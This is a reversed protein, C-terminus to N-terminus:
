REFAQGPTVGYFNKFAKIFHAQDYYGHDFFLKNQKLSQVSPKAHLVQQFRVVQSFTKATDGIYFEFLRRLQRPSLGINLDKEISLAGSTSLILAMAEHLRPDPDPTWKARCSLFYSDFLAKVAALDLGPDFRSAIFQSTDPLVAGLDEFRNSLEAANVDFLLPFMSPLFRVGVYNFSNELPFETYNKCFGMVFNEAPQNLDFFLDICGDAVVRYVFPEQLPAQTQLQWYCYIYEQLPTAPFAEHYLVAQQTPAISPQIPHYLSRLLQTKSVKAPNQTLAFKPFNISIQLGLEDSLM